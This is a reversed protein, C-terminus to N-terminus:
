NLDIIKTVCIDNCSANDTIFYGLKEKLAYKEIVPKPQNKGSHDGHINRVALVVTRLFKKTDLFHAIVDFYVLNNPATWLDFSIHIM